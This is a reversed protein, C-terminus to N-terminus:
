SVKEITSEESKPDYHLQYIHSAKGGLKTRTHENWEIDPLLFLVLQSTIDPLRGSVASHVGSDLRGFPMDIVIPPNKESVRAIATIFSLSLCQSQGMSLRQLARNGNPDLVQLDYDESLAVGYGQASEMFKAFEQKTLDEVAKRSDEAFRDYMEDLVAASKRALRERAQLRQFKGQRAALQDAKKELDKIAADLQEIQFQLRLQKTRASKSSDRREKLKERLTAIDEQPMSDLEADIEAIALDLARRADEHRSAEEDKTALDRAASNILDSAARLQFLLELLAQDSSRQQETHLRAELTQHIPDGEVFETGCVCKQMKLLDQLLTQSVKRPIMGKERQLELQTVLDVIPDKALVLTATGCLRRMEITTEEHAQGAEKYRRRLEELRAQLGSTDPMDALRDELADIQRELAREEERQVALDRALKERDEQAALLRAKVDGLEDSAERQASRGYEKAVSNLHGVANSILELDVVRYIANRVEKSSGPNSLNYIRDGDFLFYDKVNNPLIEDMFISSYDLQKHNGDHSIENLATFRDVLSTKVTGSADRTPRARLSQTIYYHVGEHEFYVTSSMELSKDDAAAERLARSNLYDAIDRERRERLQSEYDMGYLAWSLADFLSTKGYGNRGLVVVVPKDDTCSLSLSHEGYYSAFNEIELREFRM